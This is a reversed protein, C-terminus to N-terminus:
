HLKEMPLLADKLIIKLSFGPDQINGERRGRCGKFINLGFDNEKKRMMAAGAAGLANLLTSIASLSDHQASVIWPKGM